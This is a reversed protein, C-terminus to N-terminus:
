NVVWVTLENALQIVKNCVRGMGFESVQSLGRRGIVVTGYGGLIGQALIAGARSAMGTMIKTTIRDSAIGAKELEDVARGMVAHMAHKAKELEENGRQYWQNAEPTEPELERDGTLQFDYDRMIHFLTFEADTSALMWGAFSVCRLAGESTDVALLFKKSRVSRSVVWVPLHDLSDILKNAVSGVVLRTFPNMGVRGTVVADYGKQSEHIIDRAIGAEREQIKVRINGEAIGGDILIRRSKQM